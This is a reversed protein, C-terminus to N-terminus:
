RAGESKLVAMPTKILIKLDQAYSWNELYLRDLEIRREYTTNSRGSVQWLGSIGPRVLLYYRRDKGYRDLESRIIPRPGIISMEGILVNWLQPIEDLSTKRLFAGVRTVRPDDTLKQTELWEKEAEPNAALHAALVENANPVMTQFKWCKFQRGQRGVRKHGFFINGRDATKIAIAVTLFLPSLIILGAAAAVIDFLRKWPGNAKDVIAILSRDTIVHSRLPGSRGGDQRSRRRPGLSRPSYAEPRSEADVNM